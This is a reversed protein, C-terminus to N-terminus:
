GDITEPSVPSALPLRFTFVSGKGEESTFWLRGGQREILERCLYLGLGTGAIGLERANSARAFRNFLLAHQAAPIGIGEDKVALEATGVEAYQSVSITIDGGSPSYKIANSLLNGVVQETRRIDLNAVVFEDSAALRITHNAGVIQYRKMVRRALALLDHPEPHLQMHDAQLRAVDLLDDTLEVLRNTAQDITELAEKQWAALANRENKLSQRLLMDAYGKVAAM